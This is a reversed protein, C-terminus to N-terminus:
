TAIGDDHGCVDSCNVMWTCSLVGMVGVMAPLVFLLESDMAELLLGHALLSWQLGHQRARDYSLNHLQVTSDACLNCLALSHLEQLGGSWM